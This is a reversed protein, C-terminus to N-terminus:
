PNRGWFEDLNISAIFSVPLSIGRGLANSRDWFDDCAIGIRLHNARRMHLTAVKAHSRKEPTHRSQTQSETLFEFVQLSSDRQVERVVIEASNVTRQADSRCHLCANSIM